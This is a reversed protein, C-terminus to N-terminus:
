PRSLPPRVVRFGLRSLCDADIAGERLLHLCPPADDAHVAVLTSPLGGAPPPGESCYGGTADILAPDLQEPRAAPPQGSANASTAVLPAGLDVSLRRAIPHASLRVAVYGSGGTIEPGLDPAAAFLITLPGPWVHRILSELLRARPAHAISPSFEPTLSALQEPAGIILPLGKTMSRGKLAIVREVARRNRADCGLAYFTETPYLCVGGAALAALTEEYRLRHVLPHVPM